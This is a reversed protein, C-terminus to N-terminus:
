DYYIGMEAFMFERFSRIADSAFAEADFIKKTLDLRFSIRRTGKCAGPKTELPVM